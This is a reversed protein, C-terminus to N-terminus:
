AATEVIESEALGQMEVTKGATAVTESEASAQRRRGSEHPIVPNLVIKVSTEPIDFGAENGKLVIKVAM